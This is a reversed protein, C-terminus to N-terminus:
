KPIYSDYIIYKGCSASVEKLAGHLIKTRRDYEEGSVGSGGVIGEASSMICDGNLRRPLVVKIYSGHGEACFM